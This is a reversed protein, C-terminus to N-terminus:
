IWSTDLHRQLAELGADHKRGCSHARLQFDPEAWVQCCIPAIIALTHATVLVGQHRCIHGSTPSVAQVSSAERHSVHQEEKTKSPLCMFRSSAEVNQSGLARAVELDWTRTCTATVGRLGRTTTVKQRIERSAARRQKYKLEIL